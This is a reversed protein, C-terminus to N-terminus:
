YPCLALVARDSRVESSLNRVTVGDRQVTVVYEGDAAGESISAVGQALTQFALVDEEAEASHQMSIFFRLRRWLRPATHTTTSKKAFARKSAHDLLPAWVM